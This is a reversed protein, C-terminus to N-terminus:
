INPYYTWFCLFPIAPDRDVSYTHGQQFSLIEFVLFIKTFISANLVRIIIFQYVRLTPVKDLAKFSTGHKRGTLSYELDEQSGVSFSHENGERVSSM